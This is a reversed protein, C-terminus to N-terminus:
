VEGRARLVLLEARVLEGTTGNGHTIETRIPHVLEGRNNIRRLREDEADAADAINRHHVLFAGDDCPLAHPDAQAAIVAHHVARDAGRIERLEAFQDLVRRQHHHSPQPYGRRDRSAGAGSDAIIWNMSTTRM